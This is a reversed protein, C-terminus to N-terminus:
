FQQRSHDVSPKYCGLSCLTRELHYPAKFASVASLKVCGWVRRWWSVVTDSEVEPEAIFNQEVNSLDMSAAWSLVSPASQRKIHTRRDEVRKRFAARRNRSFDPVSPPVSVKVMQMCKAQRELLLQTAASNSPRPATESTSYTDYAFRKWSWSSMEINWLM